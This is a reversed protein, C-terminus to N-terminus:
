QGFHENSKRSGVRNRGAVKKQAHLCNVGCLGGIMVKTPQMWIVNQRTPVPGVHYLELIGFQLCANTGPPVKKNLMIVSPRRGFNSDSTARVIRPLQHTFAHFRKRKIAVCNNQQRVMQMRDPAHWRSVRVVRSTPLPDFDLESLSSKITASRFAFDAFPTLFITSTSDPLWFEPFVRDFLDVVKFAM